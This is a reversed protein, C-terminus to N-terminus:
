KQFEKKTNLILQTLTSDMQNRVLKTEVTFNNAVCCFAHYKGNIGIYYGCYGLVGEMSGSKGFIRNRLNEHNFVSKLTGNQGGIALSAKFVDFYDSNDKMWLLLDVMGKTTILNKPTLGSGDKIRFNNTFDIRDNWFDCVVKVGIDWSYQNGFQKALTLLLMDAFLNNSKHNIVKIIESLRPSYFICSLHSDNSFYPKIEKKLIHIGKVQLYSSLEKEFTRAPDPMAAKIIFGSRNSPISGEIWWQKIEPLGYVYASDKNHDAALVKCKISYPEISPRLSVIKCLSGTEESALTVKVTNDRWNFEHPYAGYYNGIDEWLRASSYSIESAQVYVTGSIEKIDNEQLWHFIHKFLSDSNTSNFYRSGLTPDGGAQIILNGELCGNQVKGSCVFKTKFTYDPGLLELATSTTIIKTLSAPILRLNSHYSVLEKKSGIMKICMSVGTGRDGIQYQGNIIFSYFICCFLFLCTKM